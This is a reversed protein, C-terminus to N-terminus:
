RLTGIEAAERELDALREAETKATNAPLRAPDGPPNPALLAEQEKVKARLAGLEKELGPVRAAATRQSILECAYYMAKPDNLVGPEQAIFKQLAVNEATGQTAVSRFDVAAKGWWEKKSAEFAEAQAKTKQEDTKPPNARLRKAENRAAEALDFKGEKDMKEAYKEYDEPKPEKSAREKQFAEQKEQISKERADLEQQRRTIVEKESNIKEWANEQRRQEKTFKSPEKNGPVDEAKPGQPQQQQDTKAPPEQGSRSPGATAPTDTGGQGPEQGTRTASSISDPPKVAATAAAQDDVKGPQAARSGQTASQDTTKAAATSASADAELAALQRSAEDLGIMDGSIEVGM